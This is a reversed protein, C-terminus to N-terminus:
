PGRRIILGVSTCTYQGLALKLHADGSYPPVDVWGDMPHSDPAIRLPTVTHGRKRLRAIAAELDRRRYMVTGGTEVTSDNSSLNFETTHVAVGGPKLVQEVTEAVFDLGAQLSGLHEFCCASWCFDFGNIDAPIDTMDADRFSVLRDFEAEDCLGARPLAAKGTAFQATDAWGAAQGIEAPADTALIEAGRAAFAAPLPEAGVGFGVGRKGPALMGLADLHHYIYVFEWLKRHFRPAQCLVRSTEIFRPDLFDSASCTSYEMYHPQTALNAIPLLPVYIDRTMLEPRVAVAVPPPPTGLTELADVLLGRKQWALSTLSRARRLQNVIRLM